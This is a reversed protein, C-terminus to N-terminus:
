LEIVTGGHQPVLVAIADLRDARLTIHHLRKRTAGGILIISARGQPECRMRAVGNEVSAILGADTYFKVGPEIDPVELTVSLPGLVPM